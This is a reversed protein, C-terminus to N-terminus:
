RTGHRLCRTSTAARTTREHSADGTSCGIKVDVGGGYNANYGLVMGEGNCGYQAAAGKSPTRCHSAPLNSHHLQRGQDAQRADRRVAQAKKHRTM